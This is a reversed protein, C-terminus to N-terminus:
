TVTQLSITLSNGELTDRFSFSLYVRQLVCGILGVVSLCAAPQLLGERGDEGGNFGSVSMLTIPCGQSSVQDFRQEEFLLRSLAEMSSM